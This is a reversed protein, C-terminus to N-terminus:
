ETKAGTCGDYDASEEGAVALWYEAFDAAIHNDQADSAWPPEGLEEICSMVYDQWADSDPGTNLDRYTRMAESVQALTTVATITWLASARSQLEAVQDM